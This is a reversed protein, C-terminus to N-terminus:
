RIMRTEEILVKKIKCLIEYEAKRKKDGGRVYMRECEDFIKEFYEVDKMSFITVHITQYCDCVLRVKLRLEENIIDLDRIPDVKDFCSCQFIRFSFYMYQLLLSTRVDGEVHTIDPDEFTRCLHFMADCAQYM